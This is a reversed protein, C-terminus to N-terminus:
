SPTQQLLQQLAADLKEYRFRYGQATIRQPIVHQGGLILSAREGLVPRMVWTPARLLAPRNVARALAHTFYRNTVPHPATLNYAGSAHEDELLRLLIRVHDDVHIWSMWQEGSGLIAALGLRTPLLLKELLGGRRALVLGTRLLCVRSGLVQAELAAAEWRRCLEAAFDSALPASESLQTQASNGYIGIASGSLLIKPAVRAQSMSRVLQQTLDVRSSLLRQKQAHSWRRDAIPEGALNIVADIAVDPTWQKLSSWATAGAGCLSKVREPKRSLVILSHGAASLAPCLHQGILGSGGTILIRM